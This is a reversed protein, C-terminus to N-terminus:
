SPRRRLPAIFTVLMSAFTVTWAVLALYVFAQPIYALV